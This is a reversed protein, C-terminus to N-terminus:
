SEHAERGIAQGRHRREVVLSEARCVVERARGVESMTAQGIFYRDQVARYAAYAQELPLAVEARFLADPRAPLKTWQM